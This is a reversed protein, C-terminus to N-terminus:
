PITREIVKRALTYQDRLDDVWVRNIADETLLQKLRRLGFIDILRYWGVTMLMRAKVMDRDLGPVDKKGLVFDYLGKGTLGHDYEWFIKELPELGVGPKPDVNKM